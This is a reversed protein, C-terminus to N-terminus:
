FVERRIRRVRRPVLELEFLQQRRRWIRNRTLSRELKHEMSEPCYMQFDIESGRNDDISPVIPLEKEASAFYGALYRADARRCATDALLRLVAPRVTAFGAGARCAKPQQAARHLPKKALTDRTCEPPELRFTYLFIARGRGNRKLSSFSCAPKKRGLKTVNWPIFRLRVRKEENASRRHKVGQSRKAPSKIGAGKRRRNRRM